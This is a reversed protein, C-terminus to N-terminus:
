VVMLPMVIASPRGLSALVVPRMKVALALFESESFGLGHATLQIQITHVANM